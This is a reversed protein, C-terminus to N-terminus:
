TKLANWLMKWCWDSVSWNGDGMEFDFCLYMHATRQWTDFFAGLLVFPILFFLQQTVPTIIWDAERIQTAVLYICVKQGILSCYPAHISSNERKSGDINGAGCLPLSSVSASVPLVVSSSSRKLPKNPRKESIWLRIGAYRLNMIKKKDDNSTKPRSVAEHKIALVVKVAGALATM